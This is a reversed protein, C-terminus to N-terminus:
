LSAIADVGLRKRTWVVARAAVTSFTETTIEGCVARDHNGALCPCRVQRLLAICEAPNTNYGVIDGLCVIRDASRRAIDALTAELAELNAHVDSILALRVIPGLPTRPALERARPVALGPSLADLAAGAAPRGLLAGVEGRLSVGLPALDLAAHGRGARSSFGEVDPVLASGDAGAVPRAPAARCPRCLGACSPQRRRDGGPSALSQLAPQDGPSPAQGAPRAQLRAQRRRAARPAARDCPGAGPRGGRRHDRAGHYPRLIGSFHSDQPRHIRRRSRRAPRCLRPLERHASRLRPHAGAGPARYGDGGTAAVARAACGRNGGAAGQATGLDRELARAPDAAQHHPPLSPRPGCAERRRARVPAGAAGAPPPAGGLGSVAGQRRP